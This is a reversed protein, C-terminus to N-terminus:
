HLWQTVETIISPYKVSNYGICRNIEEAVESSYEPRLGAKKILKWRKIPWEGNMQEVAWRVRRCQFQSVSELYISLMQMTLPLKDSHKELKSLQNIRNGITAKCIRIPKSKKEALLSKCAEEVRWSMELDRMEWNVRSEKNKKPSSSISLQKNKNVTKVVIKNEILNGDAYKIVTGADVGLLSATSRYSLGSKLCEQLKEIWGTGFSKIRGRYFKDEDSQDPGRRSYSFGCDCCFTGVPRGTDSCRTIKCSAILFKRYHDAAKNLCPWPASGFPAYEVKSQDLLEKFSGYLFRILLIQRLPHVTYRMSRTACALWNHDNHHPTSELMELLDRGYFSLFERELDRQRIRKSATVFGLESLCPLLMHKINFLSPTEEIQMLLHIDSVIGSLHILIKDSLSEAILSSQFMSKSIPLVTVGHRDSVPHTIRHLLIQHNPCVWVGPLQHARHWYPEGYKHIDAEYCTPCFRLESSREITSATIGVLAHIGSGDPSKMLQRLRQARSKPLFPAYFPYFTHHEIWHDSSIDHRFNRKSMADIHSPLDITPIVNETGYVERLTWKPSSNNARLHYRTIVSYLLEDPYPLPLSGYGDM